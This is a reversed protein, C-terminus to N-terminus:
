RGLPGQRIVQESEQLARTLPRPVLRSKRPLHFTRDFHAIYAELAVKHAAYAEMLWPLVKGILDELIMQNMYLYFWEGQIRSSALYKHLAHEVRHVHTPIWVAAALELPVRYQTSLIALRKQVRLGTHGIKVLPTGQEYVAYVWGDKSSMYMSM